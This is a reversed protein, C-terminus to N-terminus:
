TPGQDANFEVYDFHKNLTASAYDSVDFILVSKQTGYNYLDSIACDWMAVVFANGGLIQKQENLITLLQDITM